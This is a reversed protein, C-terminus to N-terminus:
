TGQGLDGLQILCFAFGPSRETRLVRPRPWLRQWKWVVESLGPEQGPKRSAFAAAPHIQTSEQLRREASSGPTKSCRGQEVKLRLIPVSRKSDLGLGPQAIRLLSPAPAFTASPIRLGMQGAAPGPEPNAGWLWCLASGSACPIETREAKCVGAAAKGRWTVAGVGANLGAEKSPTIAM